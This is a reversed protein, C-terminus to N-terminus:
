LTAHGRLVGHQKCTACTNCTVFCVCVVFGAAAVWWSSAVSVVSSAECFGLLVTPNPALVFHKDELPESKLRLMSLHLSSAHCVVVQGVCACCRSANCRLGGVLFAIFYCSATALNLLVLHMAITYHGIPGLSAM